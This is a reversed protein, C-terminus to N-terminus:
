TLAAVVEKAKTRASDFATRAVPGRRNFDMANLGMVEVDAPTPQFTHVDVGRRRLARVEVALRGAHLPRSSLAPRRLSRPTASMPSVVIVADLGVPALLDANTPSHVGGDIYREGDIEVPAFFSPIASSAEVATGVDVQPESDRGLVVLKGDRLRVTCIWLPREPWRDHMARIRDGVIATPFMGAPMLASMAAIPRVRWPTRMAQALMSPSSPRPIGRGRLSPRDFPLARPVDVGSLLAAGESSVPLDCARALHDAPSLGGRLSAGIGSGASTGVVIEADRGDWGAEALAALVGSHYAAGV